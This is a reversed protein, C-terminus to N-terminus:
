GRAMGNWSSQFTAACESIAYPGSLVVCMPFTPSVRAACEEVLHEGAAGGLQTAVDGLERVSGM